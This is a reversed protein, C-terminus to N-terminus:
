SRKSPATTKPVNYWQRYLEELYLEGPNLPQPAVTVHKRRSIRAALHCSECLRKEDAQRLEAFTARLFQPLRAAGADYRCSHVSTCRIRFRVYSASARRQLHVAVLM